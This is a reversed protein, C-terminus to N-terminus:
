QKDTNPPEKGIELNEGRPKEEQGAQEGGKESKDAPQVDKPPEGKIKLKAELIKQLEAVAKGSFEKLEKIEAAQANSIKELVDKFQTGQADSIQKLSQGFSRAITVLFIPFITWAILALNELLPSRSDVFDLQQPVPMSKSLDSFFTQQPQPQAPEAPTKATDPFDEKQSSEGALTRRCAEELRQIEADFLRKQEGECNTHHLGQHCGAQKKDCYDECKPAKEPNHCVDTYFSSLTGGVLLFLLVLVRLMRTKNKRKDRKRKKKASSSQPEFLSQGLFFSGCKDRRTKM